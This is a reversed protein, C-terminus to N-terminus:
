GGANLRAPFALPADSFATSNITHAPMEGSIKGGGIRIMKNSQGTEQGAQIGPRPSQGCHNVDYMPWATSQRPGSMPLNGAPKTM